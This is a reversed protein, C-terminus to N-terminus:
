AAGHFCIALSLISLISLLGAHLAPLASRPELLVLPLGRKVTIVTSSYKKLGYSWTQPSNDTITQDAGTQEESKYKTLQHRVLLQRRLQSQVQAGFSM